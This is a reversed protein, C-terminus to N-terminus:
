RFAAIMARRRSRATRSSRTTQSSCAAFEADYRSHDFQADGLVIARLHAHTKPALRKTFLDALQWKTPVQVLKITGDEAYERVKLFRLPPLPWGPSPLLSVSMHGNASTRRCTRQSTHGNNHVNPYAWLSGKKDRSRERWNQSSSPDIMTLSGPSSVIWVQAKRRQRSWM